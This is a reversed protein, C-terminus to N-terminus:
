EEPDDFEIHFYYFGEANAGRVIMDFDWYTAPGRRGEIWLFDSCEKYEIHYSQATRRKRAVVEIREVAEPISVWKDLHSACLIMRM